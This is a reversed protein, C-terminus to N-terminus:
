QHKIPCYFSLVHGIITNLVFSVVNIMWCTLSLYKQKKFENIIISHIEIMWIVTTSFTLCARSVLFPFCHSRYCCYHIMSVQWERSIFLKYGIYNTKVDVKDYYYLFLIKSISYFFSYILIQFNSLKFFIHPIFFQRLHYNFLCSYKSSSSPILIPSLM